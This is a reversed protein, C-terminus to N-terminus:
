RTEAVIYTKDDTELDNLAEEADQRTEYVTPLSVGPGGETMEVLIYKIPTPDEAEDVHGAIAENDAKAQALQQEETIAAYDPEQAEQEVPVDNENVQQENM